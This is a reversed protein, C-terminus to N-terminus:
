LQLLLEVFQAVMATNGLWQEFNTVTGTNLLDSGNVTHLYEDSRTSTAYGDAVALEIRPTNSHAKNYYLGWEVGSGITDNYGSLNIGFQGSDDTEVKPAQSITLLGSSTGIGSWNDYMTKFAGGIQANTCAKGTQQCGPAGALLAAGTSM